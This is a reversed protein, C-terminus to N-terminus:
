WEEGGGRYPNVGLNFKKKRRYIADKDDGHLNGVRYPESSSGASSEEGSSDDVLVAIKGAADALGGAANSYDHARKYDLSDKQSNIGSKGQVKNLDNQYIRDKLANSRDRNNINFQSLYKNTDNQKDEANLYQGLKWRGQEMNRIQADNLLNVRDAEHKRRNSSMRQNFDNILGSNKEQLYLEDGRIKGGLNAGQALAELRNRYADAAAQQETDALRDMAEANNGIQSALEIGSGGLGRRALNQTLTDGRSQAESQARKKAREVLLRFRPDEEGEAIRQYEKLANEQAERGKLGSQTDEVLQPAVEDIMKAMQPTYRDNLIAQFEPKKITSNFLKPPSEVTLDYGPPKLQDFMDSIQKLRDAAAGRAKESQYLSFLSALLQAGAAVGLAILPVPM